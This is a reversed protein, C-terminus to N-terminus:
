LLFKDIKRRVKQNSRSSVQGKLCVEDDESLEGAEAIEKERKLKAEKREQERKM